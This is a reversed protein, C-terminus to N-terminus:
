AGITPGGADAWGQVVSSFFLCRMQLASSRSRFSAEAFLGWRAGLAGIAQEQRVRTQRLEELLQQNAKIEEVSM